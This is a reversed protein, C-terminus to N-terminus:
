VTTVPFRKDIVRTPGTDVTIRLDYCRNKEMTVLIPFVGSFVGNGEPGMAIESNEIMAGGDYLSAMVVSNNPIPLGTRTYTVKLVLENAQSIDFTLETLPQDCCSVTVTSM